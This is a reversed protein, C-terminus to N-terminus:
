RYATKVSFKGKTAFSCNIVDESNPILGKIKLIESADEDKFLAKILTSDWSVGGNCLLDKVRFMNADIQVKIEPKGGNLGPVWHYDGLGTKEGNKICISVHRNDPLRQKEPDWSKGKCTTSANYLSYSIVAADVEQSTFKAMSLSKVRHTFERHIRSCILCVFTSFNTCVYQPGLSNCNICRRNPPLKM